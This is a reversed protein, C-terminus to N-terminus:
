GDLCIDDVCQGARRSPVVCLEKMRAVDIKSVLGYASLDVATELLERLVRTTTQREKNM